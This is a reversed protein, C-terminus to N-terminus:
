IAGRVEDCIGFVRPFTFMWVAREECFCDCFNCYAAPILGLSFIDALPNTDLGTSYARICAAGILLLFLEFLPILKM